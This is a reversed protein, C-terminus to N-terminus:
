VCACEADCVEQSGCRQHVEAVLLAQMPTRSHKDHKKSIKIVALVNLMVFKRLTDIKTSFAVFDKIVREVDTGEHAQMLQELTSCKRRSPKVQMKHIQICFSRFEEFVEAEKSTFFADVQEDPISLIVDLIV